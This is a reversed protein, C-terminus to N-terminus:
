LENLFDKASTTKLKGQKALKVEELGKKINSLIAKKSDGDAEIQVFDFSKVLEMFFQFKNEPINLIIQKM